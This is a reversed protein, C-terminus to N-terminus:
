VHARGIEVVSLVIVLVLMLILTAVVVREFKHLFDIM